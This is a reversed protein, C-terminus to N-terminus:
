GAPPPDGEARQELKAAATSRADLEDHDLRGDAYAETLVEQVVARDADSARLGAYAPDRPDHSLSSWVNQEV